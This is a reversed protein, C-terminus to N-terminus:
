HEFRATLAQMSRAMEQLEESATRAADVQATTRNASDAVEAITSAIRESGAAAGSVNANMEGTVATQEEVAAAITSQFANIREIIEGIRAMAGIAGRTDTQIAEVLGVIVETARATEQALDKVESAVVAFGKGADGARAAEITANLALLNTQEAISTIVKVVDGIEVSSAGLKDVMASTASAEQVGENAVSVADHVNRAIEQMSAGMQESGAAVTQVNQSVDDASGAVSRAQESTARAADDIAASVTALRTSVQALSSASGDMAAVNATFSELTTNVAASLRAIEDDGEVPLRATLDGDAARSLAAVTRALPRRISRLLAWGVAVGLLVSLVVLTALTTVSARAQEEAAALRAEQADIMAKELAGIRTEFAKRLDRNPGLAVEVAAARDRPLLAFETEIATQWARYERLLADVEAGIAPDAARAQQLAETVAAGRGLAEEAFEEEGTILFGREDNAAARAALQATLLDEVAVATRNEEHQATQGALVRSVAFAGTVAILLVLVGLACVLRAALPLSRLRLINM